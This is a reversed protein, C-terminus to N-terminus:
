LRTVEVSYFEWQNSRTMRIGLWGDGEAEVYVTIHQTGTTSTSQTVGPNQINVITFTGTGVGWVSFDIAYVQGANAKFHLTLEGETLFWVNGEDIINGGEGVYPGPSAIIVNRFTLKGKDPLLPKSPFLTFSNTPALERGKFLTMKQARTLPGPRSGAHPTVTSRKTGVKGGLTFTRLPADQSNQAVRQALLSPIFAMGLGMALVSLAIVVRRRSHKLM